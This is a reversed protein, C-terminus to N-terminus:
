NLAIAGVVGVNLKTCKEIESVVDEYKSVHLKEILVVNSYTSLKELAEPKELINGAIETQIKQNELEKKLGVVWENKELDNVCGIILVDSLNMKECYSTVNKLAIKKEQDVSLTKKHNVIKRWINVLVNNKEQENIQGLVSIQLTDKFEVAINLTRRSLYRLILIIVACVFGIVAGLVAYKKSFQPASVVQTDDISNTDSQVEDVNESIIKENLFSKQNDNLKANQSDLHEQMSTVKKLAEYQYDQLESDMKTQYSCNFMDMQINGFSNQLQEKYSVIANNVANALSKCTEMDEQIVRITLIHSDDEEVDTNNLYDTNGVVSVLESIDDINDQVDLKESIGGEKVYDIIANKIDSINGDAADIKYQLIGQSEDYPDIKMLISDDIYQQQQKLQHYLTYSIDVQRIEDENLLEEYDIKTDSDAVSSYAKKDKAYKYGSCVVAGLIVFVIILWIKRLIYEVIDSISIIRERKIEMNKNRVQTEEM